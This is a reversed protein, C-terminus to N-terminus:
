KFLIALLIICGLGLVGAIVRLWTIERELLLCKQEALERKAVEGRIVAEQELLLEELRAVRQQLEVEKVDAPTVGTARQYHEMAKRYLEPGHEIAMTAVKAWIGGKAITSFFSKIGM